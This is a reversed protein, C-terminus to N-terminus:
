LVYDKEFFFRFFFNRVLSILFELATGRTKADINSESLSCVIRPVLRDISQTTTVWQGAKPMQGGLAVLWERLM